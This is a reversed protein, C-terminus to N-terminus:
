EQKLPSYPQSCCSGKYYFVHREGAARSTGLEDFESAKDKFMGFVALGLFSGTSVAKSLQCYIIEAGKEQSRQLFHSTCKHELSRHCLIGLFVTSGQM